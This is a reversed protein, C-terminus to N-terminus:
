LSSGSACGVSGSGIACDSTLQSITLETLWESSSSSTMKCDLCKAASTDRGSLFFLRSSETTSIPFHLKRYRPFPHALHSPGVLFRLAITSGDVRHWKGTEVERLGTLADHSHYSPPYRCLRRLRSCSRLGTKQRVASCPAHRSGKGGEM